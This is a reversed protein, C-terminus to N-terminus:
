SKPKLMVPPTRMRMLRLLRTQYATGFIYGVLIVVAGAIQEITIGFNVVIGFGQLIMLVISLLAAVFEPTKFARVWKGIPNTDPDSAVKYLMAVVVLIYGVLIPVDLVFGPIFNATILVLLSVLSIWFEPAMFIPLM